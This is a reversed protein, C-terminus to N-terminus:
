KYSCSFESSGGEKRWCGPVPLGDNCSTVVVPFTLFCYWSLLSLSLSIYKWKWYIWFKSKKQLWCWITKFLKVGGIPTVGFDKRSCLVEQCFALRRGSQQHHHSPFPTFLPTWLTWLSTSQNASQNVTPFGDRAEGAWLPWSIPQSLSQPVLM